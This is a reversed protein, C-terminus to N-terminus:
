PHLLHNLEACEYNTCNEDDCCAQPAIWSPYKIDGNYFGVELAFTKAENFRELAASFSEFESTFSATSTYAIVTYM